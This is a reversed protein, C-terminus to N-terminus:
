AAGSSRPAASTGRSARHDGPAARVRLDRIRRRARLLAPPNKLQIGFVIAGVAMLLVLVLLLGAVMFLFAGAIQARPSLPTM